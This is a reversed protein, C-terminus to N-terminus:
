PTDDEDEPQAVLRVEVEGLLPEENPFKNLYGSASTYGINSGIREDDFYVNVTDGKAGVHMFRIGSDREAISERDEQDDQDGQDRDDDISEFCGTLGLIMLSAFLTSIWGACFKRSEIRRNCRISM